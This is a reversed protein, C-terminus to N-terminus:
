TTGWHSGGFVRVATWYVWPLAFSSILGPACGQLCARLRADAEARTMAAGESDEGTTYCRDHEVCCAHYWLEPACTCGDGQIKSRLTQLHSM